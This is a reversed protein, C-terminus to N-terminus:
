PQDAALATQNRGQAKARYLAADAWRLLEEPLTDTAPVQVAVGISVTVWVFSSEVHPLALAKLSEHIAEALRLMNAEDMEPAIFAFEEGGYRAALDSVRRAQDQIVQAVQRLCDDGAQHGYHDNYNKFWDVDIMALALPQQSRTARRWETLLMDDFRRRNAIGTLSDTASLAELQRNAAELDRTRETVKQELTSYSERLREAMQNFEGALDELEDGTRVTIRHDLVGRGILMAGEQLAHIPRVMQRVLAVCALLTFFMGIVVLLISHMAQAYLSRYAETLPEEVFVFWGLQRIAGFATLVEKGNLNHAHAFERSARAPDAIAAQVQPLTALHTNKLVLGIDPHAILRGETDVAYAYGSHGVKIRTIGDLLFELDIEAVTIGAEASGVVMAVTIYQAGERFYIPSRYPRGSKVRSFFATTSFDKGSRVVDAALRSVRLYEKGQPDLLAIENIAASRRLLQIEFSRQELVSVGPRPASTVGIKQEIDFFYQGIREAATEAKEQQLRILARKSEQYSFNISFLGSLLLSSGILAGFTLAYKQFLTVRRPM